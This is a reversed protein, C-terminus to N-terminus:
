IHGFLPFAEAIPRVVGIIPRSSYWNDLRIMGLPTKWCILLRCTVLLCIIWYFVILRLRSWTRLACQARLSCLESAVRLYMMRTKVIGVLRRCNRTSSPFNWFGYYFWLTLKLPDNPLTVYTKHKPFRLYVLTLKTLILASSVAISSQVRITTKEEILHYHFPTLRLLRIQRFNVNYSIKNYNFTIVIFVNSHNFLWCRISCRVTNNSLAEPSSCNRM